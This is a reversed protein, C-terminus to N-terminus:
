DESNRLDRRAKQYLKKFNILNERTIRPKDGLKCEEYGLVYGKRMSAEVVLIMLNKTKEDFRGELGSQELADDVM